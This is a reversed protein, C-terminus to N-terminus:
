YLWNLYTSILWSPCIKGWILTAHPQSPPPTELNMTCRCLQTHKRHWQPHALAGLHQPHSSILPLSIAGMYSLLPLTLPHDVEGQTTPPATHTSPGNDGHTALPGAQSTVIFPPLQSIVTQLVISRGGIPNNTVPQATSMSGSAIAISSFPDLNAGAM